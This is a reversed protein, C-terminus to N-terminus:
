QRSEEKKEPISEHVWIEDATIISDLYEEGDTEFAQRFECAAEVRQWKNDDALMKPVWM